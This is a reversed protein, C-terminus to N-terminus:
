DWRRSRSHKSPSGKKQGELHFDFDAGEFWHAILHYLAKGRELVLQENGTVVMWIYGGFLLALWGFRRMHLCM